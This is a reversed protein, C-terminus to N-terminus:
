WRCKRAVMRMIKVSIDESALQKIRADRIADRASAARVGILRDEDTADPKQGKEALQVSAAEIANAHYLPIDWDATRRLVERWIHIDPPNLPDYVRRKLARVGLARAAEAKIDDLRRRPV